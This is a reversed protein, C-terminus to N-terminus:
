FHELADGLLRLMTFFWILFLVGPIVSLIFKQFQLPSREKMWRMLMFPPSFIALAYFPYHIFDSLFLHSNLDMAIMLLNYFMFVSTVMLGALLITEFKKM